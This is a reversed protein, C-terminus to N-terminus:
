AHKARMRALVEDGPVGQVRGSEIERWRRDAEDRWAREWEERSPLVGHADVMGILEYAVALKDQDDLPRAEELIRQAKPTM